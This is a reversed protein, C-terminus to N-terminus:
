PCISNIPFYDINDIGYTGCSKQMQQNEVGRLNRVVCVVPEPVRKFKM